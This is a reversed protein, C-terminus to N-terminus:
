NTAVSLEVFASVHEQRPSRRWRYRVEPRGPCGYRLDRRALGRDALYELYRRATGRSAGMVRAMETASLSICGDAACLEGVVSDLTEACVGKPLRAHDRERLSALLDDVEAQVVFQGCRALRDRYACYRKLGQRMITFSIPKVLYYLVGYCVSARLAAPNNGRIAAIVDNTYGHSRIMRLLETGSIDPSDIDLLVLDIKSRGLQRMADAASRSKGLVAFGLPRAVRDVQAFGGNLEDEIILVSIV